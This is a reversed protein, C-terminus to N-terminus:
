AARRQAIKNKNAKILAIIRDQLPPVSNYIGRCQVIELNNIDMEITAISVGDVLAHLILSEEKQYYKNVFVCHHLTHWEDIFEQISILPKITLESDKFELDFYRSKSEKYESEEEAIKKKNALYRRERDLERQM